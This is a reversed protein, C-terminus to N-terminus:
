PTPSRADTANLNTLEARATKGSEVMVQVDWRLRADGAAAEMGLTSLWYTGAPVGNLTARGELDTDAKAALYHMQAIEPARREVVRRHEANIQNWRRAPNVPDLYAEMGGVTQPNAVIFKRLAALYEQRLKRFRESNASEEAQSYKPRPLSRTAGGSNARVYADLFEPIGIINDVSLMQEMDSATLDITDHAKMWEKLEHSLKLGSIFQERTPLLDSAEAERKIDAYSKRLLYFTLQRVPEPRGATPAIRAVVAISGPANEAALHGSTCLVAPAFSLAALFAKRMPRM